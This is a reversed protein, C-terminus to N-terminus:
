KEANQWLYRSLDVTGDERVTVGEEELLERQVAPGGFVYGPALGGFRNVVRHCPIRQPDPNRHLAGGVMRSARPSGCLVAIQGYTMVKGQPIRRVIAYVKDCFTDDNSM